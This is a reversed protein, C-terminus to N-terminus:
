FRFYIFPNYTDEILLIISGTMIVTCVLVDLCSIDYKVNDISDVVNGKTHKRLNKMSPVVIAIVVAVIFIIIERTGVYYMLYMGYGLNEKFVFMNHILTLGQTVTDARFMVWGVIIVLMAYVNNLLKIPNRELLKKLGLREIIMFIGHWMGWIVFTLNAGHWLGTTLFVVVLNVYTRFKGKRNGGLPIYLYEKFWTSLSIHWRRWFEQISRSIYPFHFNEMFSFGFMKGLGIAMDSYGSFDFYIQVTYCLAVCWALSTGIGDIDMGMISDVVRGMMNSIIVKKGLGYIFRKVGYSFEDVTCKRNDIQECIDRYKVIPGAILQPFFSIYLALKYWNKQAKVDGKYVDIIYSMVQFTFFSLGIPLSNGTAGIDTGVVRNALEIFMDIYKYQFLQGINFSIVVILALRRYRSITDLMIGFLYNITIMLLLVLLNEVDDWSYFILSAVLLLINCFLNTKKKAWFYIIYYGILVIPLFRWLFIMSSFVM